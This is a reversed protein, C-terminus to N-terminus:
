SDAVFGYTQYDWSAAEGNTTVIGFGEPHGFRAGRWWNGSVAGSTIFQCGRYNVIERIHTHGQLVLKLSYPWLMELVQKGNTVHLMDPPTASDAIQLFATALAIHTVVVLPKTKPISKLTNGLWEIQEDDIKGIFMRDPTLFISDLIIFQWGRNEFTYYRKGMLDEYMKKGYSPHDPAVGSKSSVGFVDHNGVTHYVPAQLQKVANQWMSFVRSAREFGVEAADFVLDGGVIVFDPELRNVHEICMAVGDAAHLESQIHPDTLHVFRPGRSATGTTQLLTAGLPAAVSAQLLERRTLM